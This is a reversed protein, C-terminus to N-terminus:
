SEKTFAAIRRQMLDPISKVSECQPCTGEPAEDAIWVAGCPCPRSM